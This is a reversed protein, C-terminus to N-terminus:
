KKRRWCTKALSCYKCVSGVHKKDFKPGLGILTASSKFPVLVASDNLRVGIKELELLSTLQRQGSTPWGNLSGPALSPGVGWGRDAVEEEVVRRLALGVEGLGSVGISDLYYGKLMEGSKQIRDVEEGLVPGITAVGVLAMEAPGMLDARPGLGLTAERGSEPVRLDLEEGEIRVVEAWEYIVKPEFLPRATELAEALGKVLTENTRGRNLDHAIQAVDLEIRIDTLIPM